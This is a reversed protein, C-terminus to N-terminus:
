DPKNLKIYSALFRLTFKANVKKKKATYESYNLTMANKNM